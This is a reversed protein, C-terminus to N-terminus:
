YSATRYFITRSGARANKSRCAQPDENAQIIDAPAIGAHTCYDAVSTSRLLAILVRNRSVITEGACRAAMLAWFLAQRTESSFRDM